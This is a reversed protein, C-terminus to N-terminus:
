ELHLLFSWEPLGIVINGYLDRVQINLVQLPVHYDKLSISQGYQSSQYFYIIGLKNTNNSITFTSNINNPTMYSNSLQNINIFLTYQDITPTYYGNHVAYTHVYSNPFGIVSHISGTPPFSISTATAFTITVWCNIDDFVISSISPITTQFATFLQQLNYSGPPIAYPTGGVFISNNSTTINYYSNPICAEVLTVKDCKVAMPLDITFNSPTDYIGSRNRSDIRLYKRKISM